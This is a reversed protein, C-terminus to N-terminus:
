NSIANGWRLLFLLQDEESNFPIIMSSIDQLGNELSAEAWAIIEQEHEVYFKPNAVLVAYKLNEFSLQLPLFNVM